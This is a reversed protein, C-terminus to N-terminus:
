DYKKIKNLIHEIRQLRHYVEHKWLAYSQEEKRKKEELQKELNDLETLMSKWIHFLCCLVFIVIGCGLFANGIKELEDDNRSCIYQTSKKWIDIVIYYLSVSYIRLISYIAWFIQGLIVFVRLINEIVVSYQFYIDFTYPLVLDRNMEVAYISERYLANTM